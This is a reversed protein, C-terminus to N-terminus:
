FGQNKAKADDRYIAGLIEKRAWGEPDKAIEAFGEQKAHNWYHDGYADAPDTSRPKKAARYGAAVEYDGIKKELMFDELEKMGDDPIGYEKQVRDRQSKYEDDEARRKAAAREEERERREQDLRANVKQEIDYDPIQLAPYKRKILAKAPGSLEPDNYISESFDAVQRRAQLFNYEEDDITRPM